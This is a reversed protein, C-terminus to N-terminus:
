LVRWKLLVTAVVPVAVILLFIPLEDGLTYGAKTVGAWLNFGAIVVWVLVFASAAIRTAEPYAAAFLKGLVLFGGMLLLGAALFMVTRM